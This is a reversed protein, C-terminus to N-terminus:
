LLKLEGNGDVRVGGVRGGGGGSGVGGGFFNKKQIKVFAESRWECEGQGGGGGEVRDGGGGGFFFFFFFYFKGLLKVEGNVDVRVGGGGGGSKKEKECYSGNKTCIGGEGQRQSM